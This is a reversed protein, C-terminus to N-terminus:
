EDERNFGVQIATSFPLSSPNLASTVTLSPQALSTPNLSRRKMSDLSLDVLHTKQCLPAQKRSWCSEVAVVMKMWVMGKFKLLHSPSCTATGKVVRWDESLQRNNLKRVIRVDLLVWTVM